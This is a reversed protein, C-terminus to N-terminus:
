LTILNNNFIEYKISVVGNAFSIQPTFNIIRILNYNKSFKIEFNEKKSKHILKSFYENKNEFKGSVYFDIINSDKNLKTEINIKNEEFFKKSYHLLLNITFYNEEFNLHYNIFSSDKKIELNKNNNLSKFNNNINNNEQISELLFSLCKFNNENLLEDNFNNLILNYNLDNDLYIYCEKYLSEIDFDYKKFIYKFQNIYKLLYIQDFTQYLNHIIIIETLINNNNLYQKIKSIKIKDKFDFYNTIYLILSANKFENLNCDYYNINKFNLNIKKNNYNNKILFTFFKKGSNKKGIIFINLYLDSNIIENESKLIFNNKLYYNNYLTNFILKQYDFNLQNNKKNNLDDSIENNNKQEKELDVFEKDSM